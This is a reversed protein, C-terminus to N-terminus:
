TQCLGSLFLLESTNQFKWGWKSQTFYFKRQAMLNKINQCITSVWMNYKGRNGYNAYLTSLILCFVSVLVIACSFYVVNHLALNEDTERQSCGIEQSKFKGMSERILIDFNNYIQLICFKLLWFLLKTHLSNLICFWCPPLSKCSYLKSVIGGCPWM